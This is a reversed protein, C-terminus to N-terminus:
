EKDSRNNRDESQKFQQHYEEKYTHEETKVEDFLPAVEVPVEVETKVEDVPAESEVVPTAEAPVEVETQAMADAEDEIGFISEVEDEIWEVAVTGAHLIEGTIKHIWGTPTPVADGMGAPVHAGELLKWAM